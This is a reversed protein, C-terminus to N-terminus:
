VTMNNCCLISCTDMTYVHLSVPFWAIVTALYEKTGRNVKYRQTKRSVVDEVKTLCQM